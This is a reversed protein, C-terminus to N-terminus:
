STIIFWEIVAGVLLLFVTLLIVQWTDYRLREVFEEKGHKLALYVLYISEAFGLSYACYEVLFVINLFYISFAQCISINAIQGICGVAYGTYLSTIIISLVGYVPIFAVLAIYCNNFFISLISADELRVSIENYTQNAISYEVSFGYIIGIVTTIVLLTFAFVFCLLYKREFIM